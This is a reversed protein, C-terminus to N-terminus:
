FTVNSSIWMFLANVVSQFNYDKVVLSRSETRAVGERWGRSVAM